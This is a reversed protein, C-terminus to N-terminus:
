QVVRERSNVLWGAVETVLQKSIDWEKTFSQYNREIIILDESWLDKKCFSSLEWPYLCSTLLTTGREESLPFTEDIGDLVDKIEEIHGEKLWEHLVCRLAEYWSIPDKESTEWFLQQHVSRAQSLSEIPPVLNQYIPHRNKELLHHVKALRNKAELKLKKLIEVQPLAAAFGIDWDKELNTIFPADRANDEVISTALYKGLFQGIQKPHDLIPYAEEVVDHVTIWGLDTSLANEGTITQIMRNTMIDHQEALTDRWKIHWRLQDEEKWLQVAKIGKNTDIIKGDIMWTISQFPYNKELQEIQIM